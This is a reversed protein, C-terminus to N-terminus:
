VAFVEEILDDLIEQAPQPLPKKKQLLEIKVKFERILEPRVKKISLLTRALLIRTVINDPCDVCLQLNGDIIEREGHLFSSQSGDMAAFRASLLQELRLLYLTFRAGIPVQYSKPSEQRVVPATSCLSSLIRQTLQQIADNPQAMPFTVECQDLVQRDDTRILRM